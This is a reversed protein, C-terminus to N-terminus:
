KCIYVNRVEILGDPDMGPAADYDPQPQESGNSNIFSSLVHWINIWSAPM